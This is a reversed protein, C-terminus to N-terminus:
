CTIEKECTFIKKIRQKNLSKEIDWIIRTIKLETTKCRTIHGVIYLKNIDAFQEVHKPMRIRIRVVSAAALQVLM